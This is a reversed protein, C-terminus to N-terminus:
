IDRMFCKMIMQRSYCIFFVDITTTTRLMIPTISFSEAGHPISFLLM